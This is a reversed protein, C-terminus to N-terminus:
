SNLHDFKLDSFVDQIGSFHDEIEKDESVAFAVKKSKSPTSDSATRPQKNMTLPTYPSSLSRNNKAYADQM